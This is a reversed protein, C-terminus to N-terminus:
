IHILSLEQEHAISAMVRDRLGGGYAMTVPGQVSAGRYLGLRMTSPVGSRQHRRLTAVQLRLPTLASPSLEGSEHLPTLADVTESLLARNRRWSMVSGLVLLSGAISLAIGLGRQLRRRSAARRETPVDRCADEMLRDRFIAHLFMGEDTPVSTQEGIPLQMREQFARQARDIAHGSQTASTFYVGRLLAREHLADPVVLEAVFASLPERLSDFVEPFHVISASERADRDGLALASRASLAETMSRLHCAMRAMRDRAREEGASFPLTFGWAQEREESAMDRFTEVFGPLLDCQTVLVTIPVEAEVQSIAELVRLRLGELHGRWAEEEELLLGVDITVVIGHLPRKRAGKLLTLFVPWLGESEKGLPQGVPDALLGTTDFFVGEKALWFDCAASGRATAEGLQSFTLGSARLASTKGSARPGIVLFWPLAELARQGGGRLSSRMLASKMSEFERKLQATAADEPANGRGVLAQSVASKKKRSRLFRWVFPLSFLGCLLTVLAPVWLPWGLLFALPWAALAVIVFLVIAFMGM